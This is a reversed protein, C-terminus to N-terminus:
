PRNPPTQWWNTSPQPRWPATGSTNPPAPGYDPTGPSRNQWANIGDGIHGILSAWNSGAQQGALMANQGYMGAAQGAANVGMGAAGATASVGQGMMGSAQNMLQTGVGYLGALQNFRQNNTDRRAQQRAMIEAGAQGIGYQRDNAGWMGDGPNIGYREMQRQGQGRASDFAMRTDATIAAYDPERAAMAEETMADLVPDFRRQNQLFQDMGFGYHDRAFGMQDRALAMQEDHMAQQARQQRRASRSASRAGLLSAGAGIVAGWVM